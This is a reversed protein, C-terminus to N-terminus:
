SSGGENIKAAMVKHRNEIRKRTQPNTKELAYRLGERSFASLNKEVFKLMEKPLGVGVQRLLWGTATQLFREKSVVNCSCVEFIIPVLWPTEKISKPALQFVSYGLDGLLKITDMKLTFEIVSGVVNENLFLFSVGV